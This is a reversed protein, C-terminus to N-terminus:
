SSGRCSSAASSRRTTLARFTPSRSIGLAKGDMGHTFKVMLGEVDPNLMGLGLDREYKIKVEIRSGVTTIDEMPTAVIDGWGANSTATIFFLAIFSFFRM